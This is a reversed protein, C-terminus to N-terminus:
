DEGGGALATLRSLARRESDASALIRDAVEEVEEVPLEAASDQIRLREVAGLAQGVELARRLVDEAIEAMAREADHSVQEAQVSLRALRRSEDMDRRSYELASLKAECSNFFDLLIQSRADLEDLAARFKDALQRATDRHEAAIAGSEPGSMREKWYAESRRAEQFAAELPARARGWESRPGMLRRRQAALDRRFREAIDGYLEWPRERVVEEFRAALRRRYGEVGGVGTVVIVLAVVLAGVLGFLNFGAIGVLLALMALGFYAGVRDIAMPPKLDPLYEEFLSRAEPVLIPEPRDPLEWTM